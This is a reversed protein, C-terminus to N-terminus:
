AAERGASRGTRAHDQAASQRRSPLAPRDEASRAVAGPHCPHRSDHSSRDHRGMVHSARLIAVQSTWAATTIAETLTTEFSLPRLVSGRASSTVNRTASSTVGKAYKQHSTTGPIMAIIAQNM